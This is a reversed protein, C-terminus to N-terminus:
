DSDCGTSTATTASTAFGAGSTSRAPARTTRRWVWSSPSARSLRAEHILSTVISAGIGRSQHAPLLQIGALEVRDDARVVGLRGVPVGDIEVVSTSSGALDGRVQERTWDTFGARFETEDFDAPLRGQARTAEVVVDTLFAVDEDTATRLEIDVRHLNPRSDGTTERITRPVQHRCAPM